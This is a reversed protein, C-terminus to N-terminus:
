IHIQLVTTIIVLCLAGCKGLQQPELQKGALSLGLQGVNM